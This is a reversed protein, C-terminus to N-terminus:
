DTVEITDSEWEKETIIYGLRNFRWMGACVILDSGDGDMVTWIKKPNEARQTMVHDLEEDYTELMTGAFPALDEDAVEAPHKARLIPNIVPKYNEFFFETTM